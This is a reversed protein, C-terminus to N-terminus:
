QIIFRYAHPTHNTVPSAKKLHNIDSNQFRM